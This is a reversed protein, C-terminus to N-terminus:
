KGRSGIAVVHGRTRYYLVNESFAPSAMAIEGMMNKSLLEFQPGAKVVFVEGEESTFYIKGDVLGYWMAVLHPQGSPGITGMTATRSQEIFSTIETDSMVIQARQNTGM